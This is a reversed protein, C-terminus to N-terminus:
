KKQVSLLSETFTDSLSAKKKYYAPVTTSDYLESTQVETFAKSKCNYSYLSVAEMDKRNNYTKLLMQESGAIGHFEVWQEKDWQFPLELTVERWDTTDDELIWLKAINGHPLIHSLAVRDNVELLHTVDEYDECFQDTIFTPVAITKYKESGVDFAVILVQKRKSF